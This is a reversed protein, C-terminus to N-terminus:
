VGDARRRLPLRNENACARNDIDNLPYAGTLALGHRVKCSPCVADDGVTVVQLPTTVIEGPTAPGPPRDAV